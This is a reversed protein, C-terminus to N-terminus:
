QESIHVLPSISVYEGLALIESEDFSVALAPRGDESVCNFRDSDQVEHDMESGAQRRSPLHKADWQLCAYYFQHGLESWTDRLCYKLDEPHIDHELVLSDLFFIQGKPVIQRSTGHLAQNVATALRHIEHGLQTESPDLLVIGFAKRQSAAHPNSQQFSSTSDKSGIAHLFESLGSSNQDNGFAENSLSGPMYVPITTLPSKPNRHQTSNEKTASNPCNETMGPIAKTQVQHMATLSDPPPNSPNNEAKTVRPVSGVSKQSSSPLDAEKQSSHHRSSLNGNETLINSEVPPNEPVLPLVTEDIFVAPTRKGDESDHTKEHRQAEIKCLSVRDQEDESETESAGESASTTSGACGHSSPSQSRRVIYQNLGNGVKLRKCWDERERQEDLDESPVSRAEDALKQLEHYSVADEYTRDTHIKLIRPFRLTYYRGGSPKEFGSGMMEVVFPKKFLTSAGPLNGNGYEVHFGYFEEPDCAHFEGFQNLIQMFRHHMCHRNIVDVVKFRPIDGGQIVADKNLLCGVLFHTWRLKKVHPLATSEQASYAAGILALDVTDGLGPIYDKKLKIWRGFSNDVGASYFPFYPEECAKLVYGEWRQAIARAFSAALRHQNDPRNFDLIEQESIAARGPRTQILDQLILRRQRHPKKLCADDDLLLVDFFVIM